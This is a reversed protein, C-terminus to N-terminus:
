IVVPFAYKTVVSDVEPLGTPRDPSPASFTILAGETAVQRAREPYNNGRNAYRALIIAARVLEAPLGGDFPRPGGHEIGITVTSDPRWGAATYVGGATIEYDDLDMAVGDVTVSRLAKPYVVDPVYVVTTERHPRFTQEVYERVPPFHLASKFWDEVIDALRGMSEASLEALEPDERLRHLPVVRREVIEVAEDVVRTFGGSVPISWTATLRTLVSQPDVTAEYVGLSTNTVTGVTVTAGDPDTVTLTPLSVPAVLAGSDDDVRLRVVVERNLVARM